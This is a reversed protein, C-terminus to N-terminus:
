PLPGCITPPTPPLSAPLPWPVWAEFLGGCCSSGPIRLCGYSGPAPCMPLLTRPAQSDPPKWVATNLCSSFCWREQILQWQPLHKPSPLAPFRHASRPPTDLWAREARHDSHGTAPVVGSSGPRLPWQPCVSASGDELREEERASPFKHLVAQQRGKCGRRSLRDQQFSLLLAPFLSPTKFPDTQGTLTTTLHLLGFKEEM